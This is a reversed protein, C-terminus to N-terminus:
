LLHIKLHIVFITIIYKKVIGMCRTVNDTNFVVLYVVPVSIQNSINAIIIVLIENVNYPPHFIHRDRTNSRLIELRLQKTAMISLYSEIVNGLKVSNCREISDNYYQDHFDYYGINMHYVFPRYLYRSIKDIVLRPLFILREDM